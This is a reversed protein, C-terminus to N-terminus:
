QTDPSQPCWLCQRAGLAEGWGAWPGPGRKLEGPSTIRLSAMPHQDGAGGCDQGAHGDAGSLQASGRASMRSRVQGTGKELSTGSAQLLPQGRSSRVQGGAARSGPQPKPCSSTGRRAQQGGHPSGQRARTVGQFAPAQVGGHRYLILSSTATVPSASRVM